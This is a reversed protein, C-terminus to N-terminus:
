RNLGRADTDYKRRTLHEVRDVIQNLLEGVKHQRGADSKPASFTSIPTPAWQSIESM